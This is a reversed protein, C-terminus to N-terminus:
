ALKDCPGGMATKLTKLPNSCSSARTRVGRRVPSSDRSAPRDFPSAAPMWRPGLAVPRSPHPRDSMGSERPVRRLSCVYCMIHSQGVIKVAARPRLLRPASPADGHRRGASSIPRPPRAVAAGPVSLPPKTERFLASKCSFLSSERSFLSTEARNRPREQNTSCDRKTPQQGVRRFTCRGPIRWSRRWRRSMFM